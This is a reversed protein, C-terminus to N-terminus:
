PFYFICMHTLLGSNRGCVPVRGLCEKHAAMKCRTCRYGQFFTGRCIVFNLHQAESSLSCLSSSSSPARRVCCRLLMSCAKCSTTEDFCHMQFDHNNATSNEPCMNSRCVDLVVTRLSCLQRRQCTTPGINIHLLQQCCLYPKGPTSSFTFVQKKIIYFCIMPHRIVELIGQCVM